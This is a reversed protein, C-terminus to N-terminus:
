PRQLPRENRDGCIRRDATSRIAQKSLTWLAPFTSLFAAGLLIHVQYGNQPKLLPDEATPSDTKGAFGKSLDHRERETDPLERIQTAGRCLAERPCTVVQVYIRPLLGVGGAELSQPLGADADTIGAGKISARHAVFVRTPSAVRWKSIHKAVSGHSPKPCRPHIRVAKQKVRPFAPGKRPLRVRETGIGPSSM